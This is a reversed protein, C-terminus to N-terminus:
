KKMTNIKKTIQKAANELSKQVDNGKAIFQLANGMPDWVQSMEPINPMPESHKIQETFGKNIPNNLQDLVTPRPVMEGANDFYIKSNEDNTMFKALDAAWYKNKSYYSVLWSKVGSFSVAPSGNLTPLPATAVKDGLATQYDKIAWPGNIVMAAKGEKFLGNVLDANITKPILGETFFSQLEKFGRVAGQSAVNIQSPDYNGPEGGFISANYNKLFMYTYYFNNGEFVFGYKKQAANTLDKAKAKLDEFTAPAEPVMSKNYFLAYTEIVAPFGYIHPKAEKDGTEQYTYTVAQIASSSYGDIEKKSLYQDVPAALGQTVLDGIRDQPQFFLDPGKGQPGVVALKKQQDLMNIQTLKVKIGTKQTYADTIQKIAKVQAAEANVWVELQDPKAEPKKTQTTKQDKAQKGRDPGCGTLILSIALIVSVILFGIKGKKM